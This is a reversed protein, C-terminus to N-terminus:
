CQLGPRAQERRAETDIVGAPDGPRRPRIPGTMRRRPHGGGRMAHPAAPHRRRSRPRHTAHRPEKSCFIIRLVAM